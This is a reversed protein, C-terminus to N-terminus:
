CSMGQGALTGSRIMSAYADAMAWCAPADWAMMPLHLDMSMRLKPATCLCALAWILLLAM